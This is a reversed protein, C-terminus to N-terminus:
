TLIKYLGHSKEYLLGNEKLYEIVKLVIQDDCGLINSIELIEDYRLVFDRKRKKDNILNLIRKLLTAFSCSKSVRVHSLFHVTDPSPFFITGEESLRELIYLADDENFGEERIIELFKNLSIGNTSDVHVKLLNVIEKRLKAYSKTKKQPKDSVLLNNRTKLKSLIKHRNLYQVITKAENPTVVEKVRRELTIKFIKGCYPCQRAKTGVKSFTFHGCYPCQVVVYKQSM